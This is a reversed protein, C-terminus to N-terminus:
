NSIKSLFYKVETPDEFLIGKKKTRVCQQLTCVILFVYRFIQCLVGLYNERYPSHFRLFMHCFGIFSKPIYDFNTYFYLGVWCFINSEWEKIKIVQLQIIM